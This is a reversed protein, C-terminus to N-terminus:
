WYNSFSANAEVSISLHVWINAFCVSKHAQYQSYQQQSVGIPLPAPYRKTKRNKGKIFYPHSPAGEILQYALIAAGQCVFLHSNGM